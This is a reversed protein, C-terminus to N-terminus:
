KLSNLAHFDAVSRSCNLPQRVDHFWCVEGNTSYLLQVRLGCFDFPNAMVGRVYREAQALANQPGLSLRKAEVIGLLRGDPCLAYGAPGNTTEYESVHHPPFASLPQAPDFPVLAWGLAELRTDIRKRRTQWEREDHAASSM